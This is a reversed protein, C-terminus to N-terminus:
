PTHDLWECISLTFEGAKLGSKEPNERIYKRWVALEKRDRVLRDYNDQQWLKGTKLGLKTLRTSAFGKGSALINKLETSRDEPGNATARNQNISQATNNTPILALKELGGTIWWKM